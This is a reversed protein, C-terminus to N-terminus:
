PSFNGGVLRERITEFKDKIKAELIKVFTNKESKQFKLM